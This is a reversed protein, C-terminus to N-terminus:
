FGISPFGGFARTVNQVMMWAPFGAVQINLVNTNLLYIWYSILLGRIMRSSSGFPFRGDFGFGLCITRLGMFVILEARCSRYVSLRQKHSKVSYCVQILWFCQGQKHQCAASASPFISKEKNHSQARCSSSEQKASDMKRGKTIARSLREWQSRSWMATGCLCSRVESEGKM